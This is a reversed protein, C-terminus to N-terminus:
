YEQGSGGGGRLSQSQFGTSRTYIRKPGGARFPSSFPRFISKPRVQFIPSVHGPFHPFHGSIGNEFWKRAMKEMKRAMKRMKRAMKGWKEPSALIWKEAMKTGMEPQLASVSRYWTWPIGVRPGSVGRKRRPVFGEPAPTQHLPRSPAPGCSFFFIEKFKFKASKARGKKRRKKGTGM